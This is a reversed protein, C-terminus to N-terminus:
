RRWCRGNASLEFLSTWPVVGAEQERRWGIGATGVDTISYPGGPRLDLSTPADDTAAGPVKFGLGLAHRPDFVLAVGSGERAVRVHEALEGSPTDFLPTCGPPSEGCSEVVRKLAAPAAGTLATRASDCDGNALHRYVLPEALPGSGPTNLNFVPRLFEAVGSEPRVLAYSALFSVVVLGVIAPTLGAGEPAPPIPWSPQQGLRRLREVLDRHTTATTLVAPSLNTEHLRELASALHEPNAADDAADEDLRLLESSSAASVFYGIAIVIAIALPADAMGLALFAGWPALALALRLALSGARWGKSHGAEHAALAKLQAEDLDVLAQSTLIMTRWTMFGQVWPSPVEVIAGVRAGDPLSGRLVREVGKAVPRAGFLRGPWGHLLLGLFSAVVVVVALGSAVGRGVGSMTIMSAAIGAELVRWVVHAHLPAHRGFQRREILWVVLPHTLRCIAIAIFAQFWPRAPQAVVVTIFTIVGVWQWTVAFGVVAQVIPFTLRARETWHQAPDLKPWGRVLSVWALLLGTALFILAGRAVVLDATEFSPM